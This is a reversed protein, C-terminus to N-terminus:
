ENKDEKKPDEYKIEPVNPFIGMMKEINCCTHKVVAIPDIDGFDIKYADDYIPQERYIHGCELIAKVMCDAIDRMTLGDVITKGREGCETHIQGDYPRNRDMTYATSGQIESLAWKIQKEFNSEEEM